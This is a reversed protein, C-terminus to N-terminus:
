RVPPVGTASRFPIPGPGSLGQGATGTGSGQSPLFAPGTNAGGGNVGIPAASTGHYVWAGPPSSPYSATVRVHRTQNGVAITTHRATGLSVPIPNTFNPDSDHELHYQVGRFIEANHQIAVHLYGNQGTVKVADVPPPAQPQGQPNLNGQQETNTTGTQIAHLLEAMRAGFDKPPNELDVSRFYTIHRSLDM